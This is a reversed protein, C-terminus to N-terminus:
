IAGGNEICQELSIKDPSVVYGYGANVQAAFARKNFWIAYKDENILYMNVMGTKVLSEKGKSEVLVVALELSIPLISVHIGNILCDYLGCMPLIFPTQARNVSFTAFFNGLLNNKEALLIGEEAAYDHQEQLPLFQYFVSHENTSKIMQPSRAILAYIFRKVIRDVESNISFDPADFDIADIAQLLASFPKEIHKNLFTETEQSYYGLETNLSKAHGNSGIFRKEVDYYYFCHNKNEFRKLLLKPM